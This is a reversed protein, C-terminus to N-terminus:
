KETSSLKYKYVKLKDTTDELMQSISKKFVPHMFGPAIENMPVLVFRRNEIQRHPVKMHDKDIIENGYFLLDIDIERESWKKNEKRGIFKEISKLEKLLDEANLETQIGIVANLYDEQEINGWPETEYIGSIVTINTSPLRSIEEIANEIYSIREGKNSGLGLYVTQM